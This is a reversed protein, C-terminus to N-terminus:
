KNEEEEIKLRVEALHLNKEAEEVEVQDQEHDLVALDYKLKMDLYEHLAVSSAKQLHFFKKERERCHDMILKSRRVDIKTSRLKVEYVKVIAEAEAINLVKSLKIDQKQDHAKEINQVGLLCFLLLYTM